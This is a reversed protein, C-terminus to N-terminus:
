FIYYSINLYLKNQEQTLIGETHDWHWHSILIEQLSCDRAKLEKSLLDVYENINAGGSSDLM